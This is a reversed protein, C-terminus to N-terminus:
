AVGGSACASRGRTERTRRQRALRRRSEGERSRLFSGGQSAVLERGVQLISRHADMLVRSLEAARRSAIQTRGAIEASSAEMWAAGSGASVIRVVVASM